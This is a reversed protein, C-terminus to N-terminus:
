RLELVAVHPDGVSLRREPEPPRPCHQFGVNLATPYLTLALRTGVELQGQRPRLGIKRALRQLIGVPEVEKAKTVLRLLALDFGREDCV